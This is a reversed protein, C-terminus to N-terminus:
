TSVSAATALAYSAEWTWGFRLLIPYSSFQMMLLISLTSPFVAKEFVLALESAVLCWLGDREMAAVSQAIQDTSLKRIARQVKKADRKPTM